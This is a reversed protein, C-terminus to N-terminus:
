YRNTFCLNIKNLIVEQCALRLESVSPIKMKQPIWLNIVTNVFNGM